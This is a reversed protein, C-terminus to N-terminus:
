ILLKLVQFKLLETLSIHQPLVKIIEQNRFRIKFNSIENLINLDLLFEGTMYIYVWYSLYFGYIM